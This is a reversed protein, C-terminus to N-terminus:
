DNLKSCLLKDNSFDDIIVNGNCKLYVCVTEMKSPIFNNSSDKKCKTIDEEDLMCTNYKVNFEDDGHKIKDGNVIYYVELVTTDPNCVKGGYKLGGDFSLKDYDVSIETAVGNKLRYNNFSAKISQRLSIIEKEDAQKRYRSVSITATSALLGIIVIVALVEVLTFGKKNKINKM